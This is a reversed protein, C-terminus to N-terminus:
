MRRGDSQSMQDPLVALGRKVPTKYILHRRHRPNSEDCTLELEDYRSGFTGMDNVGLVADYVYWILSMLGECLEAGHYLVGVFSRKV